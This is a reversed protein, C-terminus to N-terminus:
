QGLARDVVGRRPMTTKTNCATATGKYHRYKDAPFVPVIADFPVIAAFPVVAAFPVIASVPVISPGRDITCM